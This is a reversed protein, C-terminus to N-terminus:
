DSYFVFASDTEWSEFFVNIDIILRQLTCTKKYASSKKSEDETNSLKKM